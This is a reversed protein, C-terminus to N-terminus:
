GDFRTRWRWSWIKQAARMMRGIGALAFPNVHKPPRILQPAYLHLDNEVAKTTLNLSRFQTKLSIPKRNSLKISKVRSYLSFFFFFFMKTEKWWVFEVWGLGVTNHKWFNERIGKSRGMGSFDLVFGGRRTSREPRLYFSQIWLLMSTPIQRHNASLRLRLMAATLLPMAACRQTQPQKRSVKFVVKNRM